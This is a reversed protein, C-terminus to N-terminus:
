FWKVFGGVIASPYTVLLAEGGSRHLFSRLRLFSEGAPTVREGNRDM